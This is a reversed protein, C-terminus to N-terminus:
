TCVGSFRLGNGGGLLGRSRGVERSRDGGSGM